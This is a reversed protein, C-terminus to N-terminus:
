IKELHTALPHLFTSQDCSITFNYQILSRGITMLLPFFDYYFGNDFQQLDITELSKIILQVYNLFFEFKPFQKGEFQKM